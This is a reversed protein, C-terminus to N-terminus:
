HALMEALVRNERFAMTLGAGGTLYVVVSYQLRVVM